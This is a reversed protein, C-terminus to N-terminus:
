AQTIAPSVKRTRRAAEPTRAATVTSMRGRSASNPHVRAVIESATEVFRRSKPSMPGKAAARMCRTPTFRVTSAESESRAAPTRSVVRIVAAQCSTASQPTVM